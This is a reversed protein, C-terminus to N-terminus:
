EGVREGREMRDYEEVMDNVGERLREESEWTADTDPWYKWKVLYERRPRAELRSSRRLDRRGLLAEVEFENQMEEERRVAALEEEERVEEMSKKEGDGVRLEPKGKREDEEMM